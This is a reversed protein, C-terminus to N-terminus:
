GMITRTTLNIFAPNSFSLCSLKYIFQQEFFIMLEIVNKYLRKEDNKDYKWRLKKMIEIASSRHCSPDEEARGRDPHPVPCCSAKVLTLEGRIATENRLVKNTEFGSMSHHNVEFRGFNASSFVFREKTYRSCIQQNCTIPILIYFITFISFIWNSFQKSATAHIHCMYADVKGQAYQYAPLLLSRSNNSYKNSYNRTISYRWSKLLRESYIAKQPTVQSFIIRLLSGHHTMRLLSGHHTMRLLSGHHTM